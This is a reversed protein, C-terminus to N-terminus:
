CKKLVQFTFKQATYPFEVYFQYMYQCQKDHRHHIRNTYHTIYTTGDRLRM